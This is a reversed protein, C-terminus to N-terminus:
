FEVVETEDPFYFEINREELGIMFNVFIGWDCNQGGIFSHLKIYNNEIRDFEIKQITSVDYFKIPLSDKLITKNILESLLVNDEQMLQIKGQYNHTMLTYSDIIENTLDDQYSVSTPLLSDNLSYFYIELIYKESEIEIEHVNRLTDYDLENYKIKENLSNEVSDNVQAFINTCLLGFTLLLLTKTM